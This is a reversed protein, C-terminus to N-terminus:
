PCISLYLFICKYMCIFLFSFYLAKNTLYCNPTILFSVRTSLLSFEVLLHRMYFPAVEGSSTVWCGGLNPHQWWNLTKTLDAMMSNLHIKLDVWLYCM